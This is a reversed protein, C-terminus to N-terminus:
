PQYREAFDIAAELNIGSEWPRCRTGMPQNNEYYEVWAGTEDPVEMMQKYIEAKLPHNIRTLSYLFLGYDYGVIRDKQVPSSPFYGTAQYTAAVDKVFAAMQQQSLSKVNIYFPVLSVSPIYFKEPKAPPLSRTAFCHACLYRNASTRQTWGFYECGPGGIGECVGHRFPPYTENNMRLPNNTLLKGNDLFNAAYHAKTEQLIKNGAAITAAPWLHQQHVWDLLLEGGTIFLLTAEASGDMLTTRPLIGGAVYTEDGNFPLMHKVLNKTQCQWAWELMPLIKRLFSADRTKNYYDFAQIILYGTIEVEDNEHIHFADMGIGQANHLVGKQQWIRFYFDLIAKAEKYYGLKLLCRSVGYQDRIYGLHYNHGALVAGEVSQQTKIIIAVDDIEELLKERLPVNAPFRDNFPIRGSSFNQWYKRSAELLTATEQRLVAKTNNVCEPYSPGGCIMFTTEGPTCELSSDSLRAHGKVLLQHCSELIMPYKGYVFTGPPTKLLIASGTMDDKYTNSNVFAPTAVPRGIRFSVPETCQIKRIFCPLSDAVFDTLTAIKKGDRYLEHQWIATGKERRSTVALHGNLQMDLVSPASYPPGFAQIIDAKNEYIALRGNGICAIPQSQAIVHTTQLIGAIALLSLFRYPLKM